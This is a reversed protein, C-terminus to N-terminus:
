RSPGGRDPQVLYSSRGPVAVCSGYSLDVGLSPGSGVEVFVADPPGASPLPWGQDPYSLRLFYSGGAYAYTFTAGASGTKAEVYYRDCGASRCSHLAPWPGADRGALFSRGLLRPTPAPVELWVSASSQPRGSHNVCGWPLDTVARHSDRAEELWSSLEGSIEASASLEAFGGLIHEHGEATACLSGGTYTCRLVPWTADAVAQVVGQCENHLRGFLLFRPDDSVSTVEPDVEPHRREIRAHSCFANWPRDDVEDPEPELAARAAVGCERELVALVFLGGLSSADVRPHRSRIFAPSCHSSAWAPLEGSGSAPQGSVPRALSLVAAVVTAVLLVGALASPKTMRRNPRMDLWAYMVRAGGVRPM